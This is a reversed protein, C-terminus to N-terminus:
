VLNYNIVLDAAARHASELPHWTDSIAHDNTRAWELFTQNEFLMMNPEVAQQLLKISPSCHWETEFMLEDMYTMILQHGAAVVADQVAKVQVLSTLKDRYQSHVHRYYCEAAASSDTPRITSWRDQVSDTYDFRDIWTWGIVYISPTPDALQRFVKEAIFLNGVGGRAHCEYPVDLHQAVLAPWTCNPDQLDSGFIFSCGFSKLKM